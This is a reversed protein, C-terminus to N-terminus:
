PETVTRIATPVLETHATPTLTLRGRSVPSGRTDEPSVRYLSYQYGWSTDHPAWSRLKHRFSIGPAKCRIQFRGPNARSTSLSQVLGSAPKDEPGTNEGSCGVAKYM